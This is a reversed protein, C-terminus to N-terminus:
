EPTHAAAALRRLWGEVEDASLQEAVRAEAWVGPFRASADWSRPYLPASLLVVRLGEFPEIDAPAGEGWIWHATDPPGAPLRGAADLGRWVALNFSGTAVLHEAAAPEGRAAASVEASPREGALWGAAPDGVLADALLTQLQFNDAVGSIIVRYGRRMEPYLVLLPEDDLIALVQSLWDAIPQASALQALGAVLAADRRATQRGAKSRGLMAIAARGFLDLTTWAWALVPQRQAVQTGFQEAAESADLETEGAAAAEALAATVFAAANPLVRELRELVPALAIDAEAGHEVLGGCCLAAFGARVESPLGLLPLMTRIAQSTVAPPTRAAAQWVGQVAQEFALATATGDRAVRSLEAVADDLHSAPTDTV